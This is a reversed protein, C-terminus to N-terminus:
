RRSFCMSMMGLWSSNYVIIVDLILSDEEFLTADLLQLVLTDVYLLLREGLPDVAIKALSSQLDSIQESVESISNEQHFKQLDDASLFQALRVPPM